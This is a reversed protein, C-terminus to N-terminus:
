RFSLLHERSSSLKFLVELAALVVQDTITVGGSMPEADEQINQRSAAVTGEGPTGNAPEETGSNRLKGGKQRLSRSTAPAAKPIPQPLTQATMLLPRGSQHACDPQFAFKSPSQSTSGKMLGASGKTELDIPHDEPLPAMPSGVESAELWDLTDRHTSSDGHGVFQSHSKLLILTADYMGADQLQESMTEQSRSISYVFSALVHLGALHTVPDLRESLM